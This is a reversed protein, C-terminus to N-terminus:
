CPSTWTLSKYTFCSIRGTSREIEIARTDQPFAHSHVSRESTVYIIGEESASGNRFFRLAPRGSGDPTFSAARVGRSRQPAGGLGFRVGDELQIVRLDESAQLTGDNDEDSHVYIKSAATDVALNINHGKLVGNRQAAHLATSVHLGAADMRFKDADILPAVFGAIVGLLGMVIVLEILTFGHETQKTV